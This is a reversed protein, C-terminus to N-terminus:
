QAYDKNFSFKMVNTIPNNYHYDQYDESVKSHSIKHKAQAIKELNSM